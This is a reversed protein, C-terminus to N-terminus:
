INFSVKDYVAERSIRNHPITVGAMKELIGNYFAYKEGAKRELRLYEAVSYTKTSSIATM